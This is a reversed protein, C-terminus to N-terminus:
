INSNTINGHHYLQFTCKRIEVIFLNATKSCCSAGVRVPMLTNGGGGGGGDRKESYDM